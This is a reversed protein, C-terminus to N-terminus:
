LAYTTEFVQIHPGAIDVTRTTGIFLRSHPYLSMTSIYFNQTVERECHEDVVFLLSSDVGAVGTKWESSTGEIKDIENEERCTKGGVYKSEM